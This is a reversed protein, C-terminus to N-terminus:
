LARPAVPNRDMFIKGAGLRLRGFVGDTLIDLQEQLPFVQPWLRHFFQDLRHLLQCIGDRVAAPYIRHQLRDVNQVPRRLRAIDGGGPVPGRNGMIRLHNPVFHRKAFLLQHIHHTGRADMIDALHQHRFGNQVFGALQGTILEALHM